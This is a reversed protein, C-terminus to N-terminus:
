NTVFDIHGYAAAFDSISITFVGDPDPRDGWPNRLTVRGAADDYGLVTYAHTPVWWDPGGDRSRIRALIDHDLTPGTTAVTPAANQMAQRLYGRADSASRVPFDRAPGDFDALIRAVEGGNQGAVRYAGFLEGNRQVGQALVEFFGASDLLGVVPQSVFAPIQLAQVQRNLATKLVDRDITGDQFIAARVARDYAILLTDNSRVIGEAASKAFIPFPTADISALLTDRMTKQAVGRLLISVWLGDSLDFKNRRGFIADDLEVTEAEGGTLRVTYSGDANAKIASRLVSPNRSAIAAISAHFYCSGLVGQRVASPSIGSPGYLPPIAARTQSTAHDSHLFAALTAFILPYRGRGCKGIRKAARKENM